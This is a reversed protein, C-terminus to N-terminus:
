NAAAARLPSLEILDEFRAFLDRDYKIGTEERLAKMVQHHPHGPHYSRVVAMADYGDAIAIIRSLLPIDKHKLGDPYGGGDVHEHHHRVVHAITRSDRHSWRDLIREGIASHARMSEWEHDELPGAKLLVSDPVGIKGIDHFVAALRLIGQEAASLGCSRGLEASLAEVRGSHEHTYQDREGLATLLLGANEPLSVTM